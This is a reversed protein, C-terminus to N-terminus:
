EQIETIKNRHHEVITEYLNEVLKSAVFGAATGLILKAFKDRTEYPKSEDIVKDVIDM